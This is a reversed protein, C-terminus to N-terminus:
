VAKKLGMGGSPHVADNGADIKVVPNASDLPRGILQDGGLIVKGFDSLNVEAGYIESILFISRSHLPNGFNPASL